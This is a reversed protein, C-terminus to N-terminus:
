RAIEIPDSRGEIMLAQYGVGPQDHSARQHGAETHLRQDIPPDPGPGRVRAALDQRHYRRHHRASGVNIMDVHQSCSCRTPHQWEFDSCRRRNSRKQPRERKTVDALEIGDHRPHQSPHPVEAGTGSSFRQHDIQVGRNTLDIAVVLLAGGVSVGFLEAIM